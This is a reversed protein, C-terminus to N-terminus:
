RSGAALKVGWVPLCKPEVATGDPLVVLDCRPRVRGCGECMLEEIMLVM